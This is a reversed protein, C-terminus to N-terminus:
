SNFLVQKTLLDAEYGALETYHQGMLMEVFGSDGIGLLLQHNFSALNVPTKYLYCFVIQSRALEELHEMSSKMNAALALLMVILALTLLRMVHKVREVEHITPSPQLNDEKLFINNAPNLGLTTLSESEGNDQELVNFLTASNKRNYTLESDNRISGGEKQEKKVLSMFKLLGDPALLDIYLKFIVLAPVEEGYRNVFHTYKIYYSNEDTTRGGEMWEVVRRDHKGQRMGLPLLM